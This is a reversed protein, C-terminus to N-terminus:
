LNCFFTRIVIVLVFFDRTRTASARARARVFEYSLLSKILHVFLPLNCIQARPCVSNHLPVANRQRKCIDRLHMRETVRTERLLSSRSIADINRTIMLYLPATPLRPAARTGEEKLRSLLKEETRGPGFNRSPPFCMRRGRARARRM